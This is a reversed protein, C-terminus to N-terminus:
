FPVQTRLLGEVPARGTIARCFDFADMTIHEGDGHKWHGGAPGTLELDYGSGHRGAWEAVADAVITGEHEATAPVAIGTAGAIDIRHMFPDRTLIVDFLYGMTWWEGHDAMTQNRLLAPARRRAKVAKPALRRLQDILEDTALDANKEVQLATLADILEGGDRKARRKAALQQRIMEPMSAIMQVMGLMHGAMARVDWEPCDTPATWDEPRLQEFLVTVRGYETAALRTATDRDLQPQRPERKTLHQELQTTM